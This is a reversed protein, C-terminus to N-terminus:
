NYKGLERIDTSGDKVNMPMCIQLYAETVKMEIDNQAVLVNLKM